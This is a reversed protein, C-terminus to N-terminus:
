YKEMLSYQKRELNSTVFFSAMIKNLIDERCYWRFIYYYGNSDHIELLLGDADNVKISDDFQYPLLTLNSHRILSDITNFDKQSIAIRDDFALNYERKFTMKTSVFCSDGDKEIAISFIEGMIGPVNSLRYITKGLYFNHLLPEKMNRLYDSPFQLSFSDLMVTDRIKEPPMNYYRAVWEKSASSKRHYAQNNIYKEDYAIWFSDFMSRVPFYTSLNKINGQKDSLTTDNTYPIYGKTYISPTEEREGRCSFLSIVILVISLFKMM